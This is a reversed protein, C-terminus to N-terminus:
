KFFYTKLKYFILFLIVFIIASIIIVNLDFDIKELFSFCYNGFFFGFSIFLSVWIIAGSYAFLAFKKFKMKVTGSSFGTFHRVGPIFYGVLLAWKGFRDFWKQARKFNKDIWGKKAFRTILYNGATRGLLYSLSIGAIAGTYAALLTSFPDLGEKRILIGSLIMLTEEPIPFALIGLVLLMFLSIAGYQTLWNVLTENNILCDM